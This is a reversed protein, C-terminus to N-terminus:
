GRTLGRDVIATVFADDIPERSFWRRYFLPGLLAAVIMPVDADAPLEGRDGARELVARLPAAHGRQIRSHIEAFDPDREATDVISPLVSSWNATQLLHAINSLIAELDGRLSGTDPIEQEATIRSCADLVLAERTPWHRYITTKAVRSRRAVEDVSFGSVGGDELLEFAAILIAHRSREVRSDVRASSPRSGDPSHAADFRKAAM